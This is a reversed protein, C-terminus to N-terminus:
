EPVRATVWLCFTQQQQAMHPLSNSHKRQFLYHQTSCTEPLTQILHPPPHTCTQLTPPSDSTWPLSPIRGLLARREEGQGRGLCRKHCINETIHSHTCTIRQAPKPKSPQMTNVKARRKVSRRRAQYNLFALCSSTLDETILHCWKNRIHLAWHTLTLLLRDWSFFRNTASRCLATVRRNEKRQVVCVLAWGPM